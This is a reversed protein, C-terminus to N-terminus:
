IKAQGTQLITFKPPNQRPNGPPNKQASKGVFILLFFGAVLDASFDPPEFIFIRLVDTRGLLSGLLNRLAQLSKVAFHKKHRETKKNQHPLRVLIVRYTASLPM